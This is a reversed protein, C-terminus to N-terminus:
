IAAATAPVVTGIEVLEVSNLRLFSNLSTIQTQGTLMGVRETIEDYNANLGTLKVYQGVDSASSSSIKLAAAAAAQTISGGYNWIDETGADVDANVGVLEKLAFGTEVDRSMQAYFDGALLFPLSM